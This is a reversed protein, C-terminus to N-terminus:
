NFIINAFLRGYKNLTIFSDMRSDGNVVKITKPTLGIIGVSNLREVRFMEPHGSTANLDGSYVQNLIKLDQVFLRNLVESYECFLNCHIIQNIYAKYLKSLFCAKENDITQNLIILVMGLEKEALKPNKNLELQHKKLKERDITGSNLENLFIILNKTFNRQSLDKRIKVVGLLTKIFPIQKLIENEFIRDIGIEMYDQILDSSDIILSNNFETIISNKM